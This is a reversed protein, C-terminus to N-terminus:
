QGGMVTYCNYTVDQMSGDAYTSGTRFGTATFSYPNGTRHNGANAYGTGEIVAYNSNAMAVTFNVTFDSSGLDTISSVNESDRITAATGSFNVWATPILRQGKVTPIGGSNNQLDNVKVTSM